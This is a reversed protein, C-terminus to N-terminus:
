NQNSVTTQQKTSYYSYFIAEAPTTPSVTTPLDTTMPTGTGPDYKATIRKSSNSKLM